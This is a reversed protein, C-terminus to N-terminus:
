RSMFFFTPFIIQKQVMILLLSMQYTLIVSLIRILIKVCSLISAETGEHRWKRSCKQIKKKMYWSKDRKQSKQDCEKFKQEVNKKCKPLVRFSHILLLNRQKKGLWIISRLSRACHIEWLSILIQATMFFSAAQM